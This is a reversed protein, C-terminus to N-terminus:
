NGNIAEKVKKLMNEIRDLDGPRPIGRRRMIDKLRGHYSLKAWRCVCMVSLGLEDILSEIRRIQPAARDM